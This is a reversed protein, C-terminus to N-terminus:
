MTCIGIDGDFYVRIFEYSGDLCVELLYGDYLYFDVIDYHEVGNIESWLTLYGNEDSTVPYSSYENPSLNDESIVRVSAKAHSIPAGQENRLQIKFASSYFNNLKELNVSWPLVDKEESANYELRFPDDPVYTKYGDIRVIYYYIGNPLDSFNVEDGLFANKTSIIEGTDYNILQVELPITFNPHVGLSCSHTNNTFMQLAAESTYLTFSNANFPYLYRPNINGYFTNADFDSQEPLINPSTNPFINLFTDPSMNPSADPSADPSVNPSVDPLYPPVNASTDESIYLPASDFANKWAVSLTVKTDVRVFSGPEPDMKTVKFYYSYPEENQVLKQVATPDYTIDAIKFRSEALMTEVYQFSYHNYNVEPLYAYTKNVYLIYASLFCTILMVATILMTQIQKSIKQPNICWLLVSVVIGVIFVIAGEWNYVFEAIHLLTNSM